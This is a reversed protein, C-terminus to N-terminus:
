LIYQYYSTRLTTINRNDHTQVNTAVLVTGIYSTMKEKAPKDEEPKDRVHVRVPARGVPVVCSRLIAVTVKKASSEM